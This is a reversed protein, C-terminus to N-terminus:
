PRLGLAHLVDEDPRRNHPDGIAVAFGGAYDWIAWGWGRKEFSRRVAEHWRLMADRPAAKRYCGFEGVYVPPNGHAKQWDVVEDLLRDIFAQTFDGQSIGWKLDKKALFTDASKATVAEAEGPDVPWSVDHTHQASQSAWGASQHTFLLPDYYHFTYIVNPMDYPKFEVLEKYGSWAGPDAIIAQQPAAARIAQMTRWQLARWPEGVNSAPENLVEFCIWHPDLDGLAEALAAWNEVFADAHAPDGLDAKYHDSPHLDVVVAVEAGIFRVIRGRLREFKAQDLHGPTATFVTEPDLTLRVHDFGMSDILAVDKETIYEALRKEDYNKWQAYWHSLNVGRRLRPAEAPPADAGRSLAPVIAILMLSLLPIWHM